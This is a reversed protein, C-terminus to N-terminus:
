CQPPCNCLTAPYNSTTNIRRMLYPQSSFESFMMVSIVSERLYSATFKIRIQKSEDTLAMAAPFLLNVTHISHKEKM